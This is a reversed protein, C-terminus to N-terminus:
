TPPKKSYLHLCMVITSRDLGVDESEFWDIASDHSDADHCVAAHLVGDRLEDELFLGGRICWLSDEEVGGACIGVMWSGVSASVSAFAMSEKM